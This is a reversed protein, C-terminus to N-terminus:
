FPPRDSEQYLNPDPNSAPKSNANQNACDDQYDVHPPDDPRKVSITGAIIDFAHRHDDRMFTMAANIILPILLDHLIEPVTRLAAQGLTLPQGTQYDVIKAKIAMHGLHSGHKWLMITKYTIYIPWTGIIDAYPPLDFTWRLGAYISTWIVVEIIFGFFRDMPDTRVLTLKEAPIDPTM